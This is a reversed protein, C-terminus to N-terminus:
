GAYRVLRPRIFAKPLEVRASSALMTLLIRVRDGGNLGSEFVGTLSRLPGGVIDVLDGQRPAYVRVFGDTEVRSMLAEITADDIPTAAEGLGVIAHVGRTLRIKRYFTVFDFRAFIYSPFLPEVRDSCSTSGRHSFPQRIRPAFVEVEEARLNAEARLEQKPKTRVVYWRPADATAIPIMM